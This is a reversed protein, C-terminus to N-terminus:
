SRTRNEPLVIRTYGTAKRSGVIGLMPKELLNVDGRYYLVFPPDYIEKLLTPYEADDLTIHDIGKAKLM